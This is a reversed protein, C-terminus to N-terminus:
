SIMVILVIHYIVNIIKYKIFTTTMTQVMKFRMWDHQRDDVGHGRRVSNEKESFGRGPLGRVCRKWVSADTRDRTEHCLREVGVFIFANNREAVYSKLQAWALETSSYECPHPLLRVLIKWYAIKVTHSVYEWRDCCNQVYVVLTPSHTVINRSLWDIIDVKQRM